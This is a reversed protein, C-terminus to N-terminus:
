GYSDVVRNLICWPEAALMDKEYFFARARCGGCVSKFGCRGCFGGYEESRLKKFVENNEWIESFPTELINDVKYPLYPCPWVDGNPIISCYNIGAICGRSYKKDLPIDLQRAIRQYQPACTPKIDFGTEKRKLLLRTILEEYQREKLSEEEMTIARGTPVLFLVQHTGAGEKIAIDTINLIDEYNEQFVTTNVIFDLGAKRCNKFALLTKEYTGIEGVFRDHDEPKSMHLSIALSAAGAEKLREAVKETILTGNTGFVPRLGLNKAYSTLEYIDKRVLPEGGSFVMIHFGAKKIERLLAKGQETTLEEGLVTCADRYCHPCSLNCANTVNWSIIM